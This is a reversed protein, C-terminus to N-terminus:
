LWCHIRPSPARGTAEIEVIGHIVRAPPLQELSRKRDELSDSRERISGSTRKMWLSEPFEQLVVQGANKTRLTKKPEGRAHIFYASQIKGSRLPMARGGAFPPRSAVVGSARGLHGLASSLFPLLRETITALRESDHAQIDFRLDKLVPETSTQEGIRFHGFAFVVPRGKGIRKGGPRRMRVNMMMVFAVMLMTVLVLATM